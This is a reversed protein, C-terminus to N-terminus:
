RPQEVPTVVLPRHGTPKKKCIEDYRKQWGQGFHAEFASRFTPMELQMLLDALSLFLDNNQDAEAVLSAAQGPSEALMALALPSIDTFEEEAFQNLNRDPNEHSATTINGPNIHGSEDGALVVPDGVWTGAIEWVPSDDNDGSSLHTDAILMKLAFTSHKGQLVSSFKVGEGFVGPDLFQRKAPNVIKYYVGM